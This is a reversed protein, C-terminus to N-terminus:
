AAAFSSSCDQRAYSGGSVEAGSGDDLPDATHLALYLATPTYSAQSFVADLLENELFNGIQSM